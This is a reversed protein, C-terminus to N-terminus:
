FEFLVISYQRGNPNCNRPVIKNSTSFQRQHHHSFPARNIGTNARILDVAIAFILWIHLHALPIFADM